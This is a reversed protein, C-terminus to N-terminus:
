LELLLKLNKSFFFYDSNIKTITHGLSFRDSATLSLGVCILTTAACPHTVFAKKENTFPRSLDTGSALLHHWLAKKGLSGPWISVLIKFLQFDICYHSACKEYLHMPAVLVVHQLCQMIQPPVWLREPCMPAIFCKLVICFCFHFLHTCSLFWCFHTLIWYVTKHHNGHWYCRCVTYWM